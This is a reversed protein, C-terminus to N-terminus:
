NHDVITLKLGFGSRYGEVAGVPPQYEWIVVEKSILGLNKAYKEIWVTKDAVVGLDVVPVNSSDNVQTITVTSDYMKGNIELSTGADEYAYDWLDMSVAASFEYKSFPDEPLFGNGSWSNGDKVPAIMKVFRLNNEYVEIKGNDSIVQYNVETRWDNENTSNIDRIYRVIDWAPRGLLDISSGEVVEKAQYSVIIEDQGFNSFRTSDLRYVIYKGPELRFYNAPVDYVTDDTKKECSSMAALVLLFSLWQLLGFCRKM